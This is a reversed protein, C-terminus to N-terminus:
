LIFERLITDKPVYLIGFKGYNRKTNGSSWWLFDYVPQPCIYDIRKYTPIGGREVIYTRDATYKELMLGQDYKVYVYYVDVTSSGGTGLIFSSSTNTDRIASVINWSNVVKECGTYDGSKRNNGDSELSYLGGVLGILLLALFLSVSGVDIVDETKIWDKFSEPRDSWFKILLAILAVAISLGIWGM